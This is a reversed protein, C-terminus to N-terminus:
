GSIHTRLFITSNVPFDGNRNKKKVFKSDKFIDLEPTKM